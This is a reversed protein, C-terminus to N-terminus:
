AAETKKLTDIFDLQDGEGLADFTEKLTDLFQARDEGELRYVRLAANFDSIKMGLDGRVMTEKVSAIQESIASREKELKTIERIAKRIAAARAKTNHGTTPSDSPEAADKSRGM